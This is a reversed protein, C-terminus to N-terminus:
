RWYKLGRGPGYWSRRSAPPGPCAEGLRHEPGGGPRGTLRDVVGLGQRRYHIERCSAPVPAFQAHARTIPALVTVPPRKSARSPRPSLPHHSKRHMAPTQNAATRATRIALSLCRVEHDGRFATWCRCVMGLVPQAFIGLPEVRLIAPRNRCGWILGQTSRQQFRYRSMPADATPTTDISVRASSSPTLHGACRQGEGSSPSAGRCRAM